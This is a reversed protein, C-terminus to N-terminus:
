NQPIIDHAIAFRTLGAVSRIGLKRSIHERHSHVTRVSVRLIAAIGRSTHGQAVLRLVERERPTLDHTRTSPVVNGAYDSVLAGSVPASFHVGGGHVVKVARILEEASSSKPLFGGVGERAVARVFEASDASTFVVIRARPFRAHTERILSISDADIVLVDPREVSARAAEEVTSASGVVSVGADRSLSVELGKRSVPHDDVLLVRIKRKKREGM